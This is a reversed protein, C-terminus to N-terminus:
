GDQLVREVAVSLGLRDSLETEWAETYGPRNVSIAWAAVSVTPLLCLVM